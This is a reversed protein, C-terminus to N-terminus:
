ALRVAAGGAPEPRTERVRKGSVKVYRELDPM